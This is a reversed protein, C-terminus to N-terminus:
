ESRTICTPLLSDMRNIRRRMAPTTAVPQKLPWPEFGGIAFVVEPLLVDSVKQLVEDVDIVDSAVEDVAVM